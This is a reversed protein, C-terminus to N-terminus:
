ERICPKTYANILGQAMNRFSYLSAQTYGLNTQKEKLSEDSLLDLIHQTFCSADFPDAYLAAKGLVEPMASTNSSVVPTGYAMAELPPIGFGEIRSPFVFVSAHTYLHALEADTPNPIWLIDKQTFGRRKAVSQLRKYFVDEKGACVWQIHPDIHKLNELVDLMIGLNKHPYANGVTLVFPSTPKTTRHFSPAVKQAGIGPYIVEIPAKTSPFYAKVQHKTYTSVTIIRCSTRVARTLTRTFGWYKLKYVLPHRTTAHASAPEQLLILDHITTILPTKLFLPVNWHPIHVLDLHEQDIVRGFLLQERLSYWRISVPIVRFPAFIQLQKEMGKLCFLTVRFPPSLAHLHRVLEEVYRGLGGGTSPGFFRADIGIHKPPNHKVSAKSSPM